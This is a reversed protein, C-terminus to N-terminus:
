AIGSVVATAGLPLLVGSMPPDPHAQMTGRFPGGVVVVKDPGAAIAFVVCLTDLTSHNIALGIELAVNHLGLAATPTAEVQARLPELGERAEAPAFAKNRVQLWLVNCAENLWFDPVLSTENSVALAWALDSDLQRLM